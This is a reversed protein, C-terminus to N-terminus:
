VLTDPYISIIKETLLDKPERLPRYITSDKIENRDNVWFTDVRATAGPPYTSTAVDFKNRQPLAEDMNVWSYRYHLNNTNFKGDSYYMPALADVIDEDKSNWPVKKRWNIRFNEEDFEEDKPQIRFKRGNYVGSILTNCDVDAIVCNSACSVYPTLSESTSRSPDCEDDEDYLNRVNVADEFAVTVSEVDDMDAGKTVTITGKGPITIVKEKDIRGFDPLEDYRYVTEVATAGKNTREHYNSIANYDFQEFDYLVATVGGVTQRNDQSYRIFLGVEKDLFGAPKGWFCPMSTEENEKVYKYGKALLKKKFMQYSGDLPIGDFTLHVQASVAAAGMLMMALIAMRFVKFHKMVSVDFLNEACIYSNQWFYVMFFAM